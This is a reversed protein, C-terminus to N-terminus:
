YMCFIYSIYYLIFVKLYLKGAILLSCYICGIKMGKFSELHSQLAEEDLERTEINQQEEASTMDFIETVKM